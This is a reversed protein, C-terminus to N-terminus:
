TLQRFIPGDGGHTVVSKLLESLEHFIRWSLINRTKKAQQSVAGLTPKGNVIGDTEEFAKIPFGNIGMCNRM